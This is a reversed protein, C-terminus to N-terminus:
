HTTKEEQSELCIFFIIHRWAGAWLQYDQLMNTKSTNREQKKMHRREAWLYLDIKKVITDFLENKLYKKKMWGEWISSNTSVM